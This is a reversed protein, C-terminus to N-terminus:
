ADPKALGVSIEREEGQSTEYVLDFISVATRLWKAREDLPWIGDPKPLRDVLGRLLLDTAGNEVAETKSQQAVLLKKTLSDGADLRPVALRSREASATDPEPVPKPGAMKSILSTM